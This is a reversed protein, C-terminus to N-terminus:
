ISKTFGMTLTRILATRTPKIESIAFRFEDKAARTAEKGKIETIAIIQSYWSVWLRSFIAEKELATTQYTRGEKIRKIRSGTQRFVHRM